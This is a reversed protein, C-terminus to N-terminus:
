GLNNSVSAYMNIINSGLNIFAAVAATAILGAILAYDIANASHENRWLRNFM